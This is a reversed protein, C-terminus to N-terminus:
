KIKIVKGKQKFDSGKYNAKFTYTNNKVGTIKVYFPLSDLGKKPNVKILEYEFNSKWNISFTDKINNYTEIQISDNRVAISIEDSDDLYTEFTGTRFETISTNNGQCSIFLLTLFFYLINKM